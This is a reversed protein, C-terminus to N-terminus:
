PGRHDTARGSVRADGGSGGPSDSRRRATPRSSGRPGGGRCEGEEGARQRAPLDGGASPPPVRTVAGQCEGAGRRPGEHEPPRSSATFDLKGGRPNWTPGEFFRIGHYIEVLRVGDAVTEPVRSRVPVDAGSCVIMWGSGLMLGLTPTDM